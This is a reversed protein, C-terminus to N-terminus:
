EQITTAQAGQDRIRQLLRVRAGLFEGTALPEFNQEIWMMVARDVPAYGSVFWIRQASALAADSARVGEAQHLLSLARFKGNEVVIAPARSLTHIDEPFDGYFYYAFPRSYFGPSIVVLDDSQYAPRMCAIAERWQEGVPATYYVFLARGTLSILALLVVSAAIVHRSRTFIWAFLIFVPPMLFLLYKQHYVSRVQSVAFATAWPIMVACALFLVRRAEDDGARHYGRQVFVWVGLACIGLITVLSFVRAPTVGIPGYSPDGTSFLIASKVLAQLDPRSLWTQGGGPEVNLLKFFVYLSTPLVLIGLVVQGILWRILMPRSLRRRLWVFAILVNEFLVLLFTLYFTYLAAATTAVLGLWHRRQNEQFLLRAFFYLSFLAWLDALVYARAVQSYEIHLPAVALFFASLAAVRLDFLYAALRFTLWVMLTGALVSLVRVVLPQQGILLFTHLIVYYMPPTADEYAFLISRVIDFVGREAMWVSWVEDNRLGNASIHYLRLGAGLLTISLAVLTAQYLTWVEGVQQRLSRVGSIVM